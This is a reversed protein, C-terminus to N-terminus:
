DNDVRPALIFTMSLVDVQSYDVKLPYDKAFSIVARESLKSGQIIKKLYEVSYKSKIKTDAGQVVIKVSESEPIEINVDSLDGQAHLMLKHPEAIFSVSDAIVDVDEIADNLEQSRMAISVPFKLDPVKTEQEDVDIIPLSFKRTNQAKLTINLKGQVTQLTLLEGGKLRRLVQKLLSLNIAIKENDQIDYEAFSSSFMRFAVMAVNAPDMAVIEISTKEFSIQVENVLDSIINISDKFYKPESITLKM